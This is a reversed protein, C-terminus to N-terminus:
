HRKRERETARAEEAELKALWDRDVVESPLNAIKTLTEHIAQRLISKVKNPDPINVLRRAYTQPLNLLARRLGILLFAGQREVLRKEVLEGRRVALEMESAM